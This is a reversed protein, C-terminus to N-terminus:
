VMGWAQSYFNDWTKRHPKGPNWASLYQRWAGEADQPGPLPQPLTWLLLRACACALVDNHEIATYVTDAEDDYGLVSLVERIPQATLQHRLVGRVGGGHEFQWFGRAPGRIQRRHEFRSEQLGIALLMARAPPSDKALLRLAYPMVQGAIYDITM